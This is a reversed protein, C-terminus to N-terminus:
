PLPQGESAEVIDYVDNRDLNVQLAASAGAIRELNQTGVIAVPRSPHCLVFAMAIDATTVAERTALDDMVEVLAVPVDSGTALRGGALPSWALPTLGIEMALDFNGDRMPELHAASFQPQICVLKHKLHANLATTQAASHNSVGLCGVKGSDVMEDLTRAVDAPHSFMDPRHIQYIDVHEVQMRRMSAELANRLYSPSSDYPLPPMIGGKTALVMQDRLSPAEALVKGLLEEVLGFGTGGWDFGYVDANDFLNMGAELAAEVIARGAKLDPDTFRWLGYALPGVEKGGVSRLGADVLSESM